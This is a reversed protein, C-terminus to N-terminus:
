CAPSRPGSARRGGDGRRDILLVHLPGPLWGAGASARRSSRPWRYQGDVGINFLNMRFGIPSPSPRCTTPRRRTSSTSWRDAAPEALRLDALMASFAVSRRGRGRAAAGARRRRAARALSRPSRRPSRPLTRDSTSDREVRSVGREAGAGTMASGLEERPSRPPTPTARGAPRALDGQHTDSLGILEDLDASILLM